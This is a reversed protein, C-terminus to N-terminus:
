EKTRYRAAVKPDGFWVRKPDRGDNVETLVWNAKFQDRFDILDRQSISYPPRQLETEYEWHEAGIALMHALAARIKNPTRTARIHASAFDAGTRAKPKTM